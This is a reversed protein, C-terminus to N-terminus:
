TTSIITHLWSALCVSLGNEPCARGAFLSGMEGGHGAVPSWVALFLGYKEFLWVSFVLQM